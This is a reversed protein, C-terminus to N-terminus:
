YRYVSREHQGTYPCYYYYGSRNSKPCQQAASRLFWQYMSGQKYYEYTANHQHIPSKPFYPWYNLSVEANGASNLRPYKKSAM